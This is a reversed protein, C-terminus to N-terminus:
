SIIYASQKSEVVKLAFYIGGTLFVAHFAAWIVNVIVAESVVLSPGTILFIGRIISAYLLLLFAAHAIIERYSRRARRKPTVKFPVRRRFMWAIFSLTVPVFVLYEVFQHYLFGKLGYSRNRMMAIYISLSFLVFPAYGLIYITPNLKMVQMGFLLFAIPGILQMITLPGTEVWYFWGSIYDYFADFGLNSFLITRLLQFGGLSWRSQQTFYATVDTPPEGYWILQRNVYKSKYGLEHIKVSTAIDETITSEDIYGAQKLVFIRYVTGSGLSFASVNDRGEMMVLLFPVQQFDSGVSLKTKLETYKQPVQVFGVTQDNFYPVVEDFFDETPRQDADFIATLDYDTEIAKLADNIAGAKFGRRNTRHKYKVGIDRCFQSLENAISADTSDDLLFVDGRARVAAKVSRVTGKVIEPNENYSTVFAAIKLKLDEGVLNTRYKSAKFYLLTFNAFNFIGLTISLWIFYTLWVLYVNERTFYTIITSVIFPLMFYIMNAPKM